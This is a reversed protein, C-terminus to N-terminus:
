TSAVIAFHWEISAKEGCCHYEDTCGAIEKATSMLDGAQLDENDDACDSRSQVIV